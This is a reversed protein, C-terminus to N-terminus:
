CADLIILRHRMRDQEAQPLTSQNEGQLAQEVGARLQHLYAKEEQQQSSLRAMQEPERAQLRALLVERFLTHWRYWRREEDLPILFLNARELEELMQQSAREGTLAQCVDANMQELVLTHLLFSAAESSDLRLDTDRIDILQGRVRLRALALPLDVRSAILLHLGAPLHDLVFQLSEHIAQEHILHYDDLILTIDQALAALENILSTLAGTLLPPQPSHLMTLTAEGVTSLRPGSHQLAAIVYTWFRTPDNDQEDL